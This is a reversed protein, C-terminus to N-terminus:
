NVYQKVLQKLGVWEKRDKAARNESKKKGRETKKRETKKRQQDIYFNCFFL